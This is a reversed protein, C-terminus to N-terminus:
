ENNYAAAFQKAFDNLKVKGQQAPKNKWYDAEMEGSRLAAGMNTYGKAITEPLGAQLMGEMSQQDTFEVWPINEKGIAKTLTSTIDAWTKEDSSIYVIQKGKFNLSLLQLAAVDAIDTTATLVLTHSAPQNSGMIGANKIMPIMSLLNYYFYSPRLYVADVDTLKNLASELYALGDVPGAGVGMHAGVSSLVVLKKVNSKKIADVYHHTIKKQYDLWDTLDWKPPIMLYIADSGEFAEALFSPNEVTGILPTAGLSTIEDAKDAKSSIISVAHGAAILKEALAKSIHGTSGTLVYKM